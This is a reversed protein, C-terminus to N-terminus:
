FDFKMLPMTITEGDVVATMTGPKDAGFRLEMSGVRTVKTADSSYHVGAWAAGKASYLEGSFVGPATQQGAPMFFWTPASDVGYTYWTAFLTNAQHSVSLGWGAQEPDGAWYIGTYKGPADHPAFTYRAISKGGSRRNITYDFHGAESNTFSISGTGIPAGLRFLNASYNNYRAGQPSYLRRVLRAHRPGV